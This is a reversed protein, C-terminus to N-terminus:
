QLTERPYNQSRLSELADLYKEIEDTPIQARNEFAVGVSDRNAEAGFRKRLLKFFKELTAIHEDLKAQIYSKAEKTLHNLVIGVGVKDTTRINEM